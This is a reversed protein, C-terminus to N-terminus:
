NGALKAAEEIWHALAEEDGKKKAEEWLSANEFGAAPTSRVNRMRRIKNVNWAYKYDFSFFTKRVM